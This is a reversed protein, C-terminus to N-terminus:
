RANEVDQTAKPAMNEILREFWASLTQAQRDAEAEALAKVDPRMRLNLRETRSKKM